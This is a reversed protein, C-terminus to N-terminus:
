KIKLKLISKEDVIYSYVNVDTNEDQYEYIRKVEAYSVAKELALNYVETLANLIGEEDQEPSIAHKRHEWLIEELEELKKNM